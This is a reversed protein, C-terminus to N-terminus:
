LAIAAMRSADVGSTELGTMAWGDTLPDAMPPYLLADANASKDATSGAVMAAGAFSWDSEVMESQAEFRNMAMVYGLNISDASEAAAFGMSDDTMDAQLDILRGARGGTVEDTMASPASAKAMMSMPSMPTSNAASEAMTMAMGATAATGDTLVVNDVLLASDIQSDGGDMVGIGITYTGATAFEYTFTGYGTASTFSTGSPNLPQNTDALLISEGAIAVFGVDNFASFAGESTLFNWDFSLVDGAEVTITALQLASGETVNGFSADLQGTALDLFREIHRDSIAGNGTTLFAQHDGETPDVGLAASVIKMVGATRWDGLMDPEFGNAFRPHPSVPPVVPDDGPDDGPNGGPDGGPTQMDLTLVSGTGAGYIAQIDSIDEAYLFATGPGSYAASYFPNMIASSGNTEHGLGLAHGVEHVAVELLDIGGSLPTLTWNESIDFHVDGAIGGAFPFWAQALTSSPGDIVQYGFRIEPHNQAPYDANSPPPGSDAVEVFNVPIYNTWLSLAEEITDQIVDTPLNLNGDLLNSFSYTVTFPTGPGDPQSWQYPNTAFANAGTTVGSGSNVLEGNTFEAADAGSVLHNFSPAGSTCCHSCGCTVQLSSSSLDLGSNSSLLSDSSVPNPIASALYM